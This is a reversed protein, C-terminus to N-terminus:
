NSNSPINRISKFLAFGVGCYAMVAMVVLAIDSAEHFVPEILFVYLEEGFM